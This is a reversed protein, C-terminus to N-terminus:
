NSKDVNLTCLWPLDYVPVIEFDMDGDASHVKVKMNRYLVIIARVTEKLLGYALLIQELLHISDFEKSFDVFLHQRLIKKSSSRQHNLLNNSDSTPDNERFVM